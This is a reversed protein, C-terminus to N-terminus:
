KQNKKKSIAEGVKKNHSICIQFALNFKSIIQGVKSRKSIM